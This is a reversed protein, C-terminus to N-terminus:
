RTKRAAGFQRVARVIAWIALAAFAVVVGLPIGVNRLLNVTPLLTGLPSEPAAAIPAPTTSPQIIPVPAATAPARRYVTIWQQLDGMPNESVRPVSKTVAAAANILGFGYIPDVGPAGADRATSVIRNIVNNADLEPHAAMVLAVVGSVIPAAGSTGNWLVHQGGPVVAVLKESPATVGITIGQASADFSATGASDAGAVTLVGPMTAPAGVETTGSGRNGAAAVVVVNHQMAYLFADDWSQPWELTNRTLSMNIVKAGHDVAYRVAKAIQADSDTAGAGFGISLPMISAEPASGIVGNNGGTGRGAALSAVMTGHESGDAGVPTQGNSSGLGSFDGGAVVAGVLEPATGDVGTDIVAITIGAGRTTSWASRIGYSDLWYESDRVKDSRETPAAQSPLPALIVSAAVVVLAVAARTARRTV